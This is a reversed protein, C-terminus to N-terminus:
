SSPQPWVVADRPVLCSLWRFGGTEDVAPKEDEHVLARADFWSAHLCGSAFGWRGRVAFGGEVPDARPRGLPTGAAVVSAPTGFVEQGTHGDLRPGLAFGSYNAQVFLWGTSLDARGLVGAIAAAEGLDCEAGGVAAPASARFLDAGVLADLAAPTLRGTRHIAESEATIVSAISRARHLPRDTTAAMGAAYARGGGGDSHRLM